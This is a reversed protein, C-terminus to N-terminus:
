VTWASRLLSLWTPGSFSQRLFGLVETFPRHTNRLKFVPLTFNRLSEFTSVITEPSDSTSLPRMNQSDKNRPMQFSRSPHDWCCATEKSSKRLKLSQTIDCLVNKFVNRWWNKFLVSCFNFLCNVLSNKGETHSFYDSWPVLGGRGLFFINGVQPPSATSYIWMHLASLNLSLNQGTHVYKSYLKKALQICNQEVKSPSQDGAAVPPLVVILPPPHISKQMGADVLQYQVNLLQQLNSETHTHPTNSLRRTLSPPLSCTWQM